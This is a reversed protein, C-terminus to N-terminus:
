WTRQGVRSLRAKSAISFEARGGCTAFARGFSLWSPAASARGRRAMPAHRCALLQLM